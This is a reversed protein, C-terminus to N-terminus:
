KGCEFTATFTLVRETCSVGTFGTLDLPVNWSFDVVQKNIISVLMTFTCYLDLVAHKVAKLLVM